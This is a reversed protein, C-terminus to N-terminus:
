EYEKGLSVFNDEVNGGHICSACNQSALPENYHLCDMCQKVTKNADLQQELLADHKGIWHAVQRAYSNAAGREVRLALELAECRAKLDLAQKGIDLVDQHIEKMMEAGRTTM